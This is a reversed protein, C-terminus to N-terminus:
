QKPLLKGSLSLVSQNEGKPTGTGWYTLYVNDLVWRAGEPEAPTFTDRYIFFGLVTRSGGSPLPGPWTTIQFGSGPDRGVVDVGFGGAISRGGVNWVKTSWGDSHLDRSELTRVAKIAPGPKAYPTMDYAIQPAKIEFGKTTNSLTLSFPIAVDAKPDYDSSPDITADGAPHRVPQAVDAPIAEWFTEEISVSYGSPDTFNRTNSASKLTLAAPAPPTVAPVDVPADAAVESEVVSPPQQCGTVLLATAALL